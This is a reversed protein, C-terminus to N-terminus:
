LVPDNGWPVSYIEHFGYIFLEQPVSFSIEKCDVVVYAHSIPTTLFSIHCYTSSDVTIHQVHPKSYFNNCHKKMNTGNNLAEFAIVFIYM